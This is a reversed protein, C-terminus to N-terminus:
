AVRRGVARRTARREATTLRPAPPGPVPETNTPGTIPAPAGPESYPERTLTLDDRIRDGGWGERPDHEREIHTPSPLTHATRFEALVGEDGPGAELNISLRARQLPSGNEASSRAGGVREIMPQWQALFENISARLEVLQQTAENTELLRREQRDVEAALDRRIKGESAILAAASADLKSQAAALSRLREGAAVPDAILSLLSLLSELDTPRVRPIDSGPASPEITRDGGEDDLRRHPGGFLASM